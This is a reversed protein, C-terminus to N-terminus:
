KQQILLVTNLQRGANRLYKGNAYLASSAGGDLNFAETCGLSAMINACQAMTGSTTVLVLQNNKNIGILSRAGAGQTMKAEMGKVSKEWVSKGNEILMPAASMIDTVKSFPIEEEGYKFTKTEITGDATDKTLILELEVKRGPKFRAKVYNEDAADKGYYILYGDKPIEAKGNGPAVKQVVNDKVTVVFGGNLNTPVNRFQNFIYVGSTDNPAVNAYWVSFVNFDMGNTDNNWENKKKGDLYGLYKFTGNVIKAKNDDFVILNANKGEMNIMQGNKMQTGYPFKGGKYAEFYNGNIAAKAGFNNIFTKFNMTGVQKNNPKAVRLKVDKDLDITVVNANRGGINVNKVAVKAETTVTFLMTILIAMLLRCKKM